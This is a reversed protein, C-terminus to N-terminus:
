VHTHSFPILSFAISVCSGCGTSTNYLPFLNKFQAKFYVYFKLLHSPTYPCEQCLVGFLLACGLTFAPSLIENLVFNADLVQSAQPCLLYRVVWIFSQYSLNTSSNVLHREKKKPLPKVTMGSYKSNNSFKQTEWLIVDYNCQSFACHKQGHGHPCDLLPLLTSEWTVHFDCVSYNLSQCAHNSPIRKAHICKQRWECNEWKM